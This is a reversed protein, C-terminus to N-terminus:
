CRTLPCTGTTGLLGDGARGGGSLLLAVGPRAQGPSGRSGADAWTLPMSRTARDAQPSRAGGRTLGPVAGVPNLDDVGGQGASM